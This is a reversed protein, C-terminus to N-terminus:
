NETGSLAEAKTCRVTVRKRGGTTCTFLTLDWEGEEIKEVDNSKLEEVATVSYSFQNGDVDSFLIEDGTKLDKLKGFHEPYNHAAVILNDQYVSGDYRCPATKLRSYDWENMVPLSLNESPISLMGIYANGEIYTVSMESPHNDKQAPETKAEQLRETEEEQLIEELQGTIRKVNDGAAKASWIYYITLCLSATILLMGGYILYKRM